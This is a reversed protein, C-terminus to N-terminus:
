KEELPEAIGELLESVTCNLAESIRYLTIITPNRSARELHAIFTRHLGCMEALKEQSMGALKRRERIKKAVDELIKERMEIQM